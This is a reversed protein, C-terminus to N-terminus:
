AQSQILGVFSTRSIRNNDLNKIRTFTIGAELIKGARRLQVQRNDPRRKWRTYQIAIGALLLVLLITLTGLGATSLQWVLLKNAVSEQDTPPLPTPIPVSSSTPTPDNSIATTSTVAETSTPDLEACLGGVGTFLGQGCGVLSDNREIYVPQSPQLRILCGVVIQCWYYGTDNAGFDAIRLRSGHELFGVMDRDENAVEQIFYKIGDHNVMTENVCASENQLQSSRFWYIQTPPVPRVTTICVLDVRESTRVPNCDPPSHPM